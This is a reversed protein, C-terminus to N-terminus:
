KEEREGLLKIRRKIRGTAESYLAPEATLSFRLFGQGNEGFSTGPVVLVRSRRYLLRAINTAPRRRAIRTWLFPVTAAGSTELALESLLHTAEAASSQVLSRVKKIGTGPYQRIARIAPEVFYDPMPAAFLSLAGKLGALAERNGVAFGFPMAPLGFSYSFSYLEVGVRKGGEASLLSVPLRSPISQYAADNIVLLNERSATWVLSSLQKDSLESGTPNHPSNIYLVRAVRGLRTGLKSFDPQWDNRASIGYGVTDGGCAIVARRYLPVGLNPVFALDGHDIYALSSAFVMASIGPGVLVENTNLKVQHHAAMWSIIEEKLNNLREGSAPHMNEVTPVHDAPFDLPWRFSALDVLDAHRLVLKREGSPLFSLIDLPMQYLRNAKDIIVRKIM